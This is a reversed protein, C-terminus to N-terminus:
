PGIDAETIPYQRLAADGLTNVGVQKINDDDSAMLKAFIFYSISDRLQAVNQGVYAVNVSQPHNSSPRCYGYSMGDGKGRSNNIRL